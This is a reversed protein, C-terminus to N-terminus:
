GDKKDLESAEELGAVKPEMYIVQVSVQKILDELCPQGHELWNELFSIM